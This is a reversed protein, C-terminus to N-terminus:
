IVIVEIDFVDKAEDSAQGSATILLYHHGVDRASPVGQFTWKQDDFHLWTPLGGGGAAM